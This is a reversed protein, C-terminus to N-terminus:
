EITHATLGLTFFQLAGWGLGYHSKLKLRATTIESECLTDSYYPARPRRFDSLQSANLRFSPALPRKQRYSM